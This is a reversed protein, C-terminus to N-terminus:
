FRYDVDIGVRNQYYDRLHQDSDKIIGYYHLTGTLHLNFQYALTM